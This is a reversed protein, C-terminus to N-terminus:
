YHSGPHDSHLYTGETESDVSSSAEDLLLIKPSKLLCRAIAVRQQEGGSLKVGRAGVKSRYGDSFSLIKDHISAAKCVEFVKGDSADLRGYRVNHMITDNFLITDQPVIGVKERLSDLTVQRINQDGIEVAGSIPDYFRHLFKLITSKGSGTEGVLAVTSGSEAVFYIDRLVSKRPDYAFTVDRFTLKSRTIALPKAESSDQVSPQIEFLM